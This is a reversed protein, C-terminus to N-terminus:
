RIEWVSERVVASTAHIFTTFVLILVGKEKEQLTYSVIWRLIVSFKGMIIAPHGNQIQPCYLHNGSPQRTHKDCTGRMQGLYNGRGQLNSMQM